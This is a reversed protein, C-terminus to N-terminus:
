TRIRSMYELVSDLANGVRNIDNEKCAQELEAAVATLGDFGYGGGAGKLQHATMRMADVSGERFQQQLLGSREEITEAFMQLLDEFDPDDAFDSFVPGATQTDSM